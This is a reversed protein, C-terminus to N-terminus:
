RLDVKYVQAGCSELFAALRNRARDVNQITALKSDADFVIEVRRGRLRIWQWEPLPGNRGKWCDVGGLGITPIEIKCLAAAKKEGETISLTQSTDDVVEAWDFFRGITPFYLHPPTGREQKFRPEADDHFRARGYKVYEGSPDFYRFLYGSRDVGFTSVARTRTLERIGLKAADSSDLGSKALSALTAKSLPRKLM